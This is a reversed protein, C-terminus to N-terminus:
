EPASEPMVPGNLKLEFDGEAGFKKAFWTYAYASLLLALGAVIFAFIRYVTEASALDIFLLRYVLSAFVVLGSVRMVKERQAFGLALMVFGEVAWACSIWTRELKMGLFCTLVIAAAVSLFHRLDRESNESIVNLPAKYLAWAAYMCTVIPAVFNWDLDHALDIFLVRLALSCFTLFGTMRMVKERAVFGVVMITLAELAWAISIWNDSLKSAFSVALVVAGLTSYVHRLDRESDEGDLKLPVFYLAWALFLSAVVAIIAGWQLAHASTSIVVFGFAVPAILRIFKSPLKIGLVLAAIAQVSWYIAIQDHTAQAALPLLATVIYAASFQTNFNAMSKAPSLRAAYHRFVFAAGYMLAVAPLSVMWSFHYNACAPVGALAFLIIVMVQMYPSRLCIAQAMVAAASACWLYLVVPTQAFEPMLGIRDFNVGILALPLFWALMLAMNWNTYFVVKHERESANNLLAKNKQLYAAFILAAIASLSACLSFPVYQGLLMITTAGFMLALNGVLLVIGLAIAFWRCSKFQFRLGAWALMAMEAAVFIWSNRGCHNGPIYFTAITLAFLSNIRATIPAGNRKALIAVACLWAGITLNYISAATGMYNYAAPFFLASFACVNVVTGIEITTKTLKNEEQVLAPILGFGILAPGLLLATLQFSERLGGPLATHLAGSAIIAGYSAFVSYLYLQYWKKRTSLIAALLVLIASAFASFATVHSLGLTLFGLTVAFIAMLESRKNLAHSIALGSVGLLLVLDTLPDAILRVSAVHHMAYTTFYAMAWAGGELLRAYWPINDRRELYEGIALLISAVVFGTAVKAEPGFNEFTYMILLAVGVVLFGIGLKSLWYLGIRAELSQNQKPQHDHSHKALDKVSPRAAGECNGPAQDVLNQSPSVTSDLNAKSDRDAAWAQSVSLDRGSSSDLGASLSHSVSRNSGKREEKCPQSLLDNVPAPMPEVILNIIPEPAIKVATPTLQATPTSQSSHLYSEAQLGALKELREAREELRVVRSVLNGFENIESNNM